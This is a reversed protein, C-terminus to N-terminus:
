VREINVHNLKFRKTIYMKWRAFFETTAEKFSNATILFKDADESLPLWQQLKISWYQMNRFGFTVMDDEHEIVREGRACTVYNLHQSFPKGTVSKPNIPKRPKAPTKTKM